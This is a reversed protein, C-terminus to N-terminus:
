MQCMYHTTGKPYTELSATIRVHEGRETNAMVSIVDRGSPANMSRFALEVKPTFSGDLATWFANHIWDEVKDVINGM